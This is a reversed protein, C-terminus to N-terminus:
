SLVVQPRVPVVFVPTSNLVPRMLPLKASPPVIPMCAVSAPYRRYFRLLHSKRRFISTGISIFPTRSDSVEIGFCGRDVYDGLFLYNNEEFSGGIEFIKM